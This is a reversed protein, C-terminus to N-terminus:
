NLYIAYKDIHQNNKSYKYQIWEKSVGNELDTCVNSFLISRTEKEQEPFVVIKKISLSVENLLLEIQKNAIDFVAENSPAMVMRFTAYSM